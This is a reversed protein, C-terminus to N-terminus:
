RSVNPNEIESKGNEIPPKPRPNRRPASRESELRQRATIRSATIIKLLETSEIFLPIVRAPPLLRSTIILDLWYESEDMEEEAIALKAVFDARSRARCAARYNAAPSTGSRVLQNAIARGVTTNPLQGCLKLIRLSFDRLRLKLDTETM